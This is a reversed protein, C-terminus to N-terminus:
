ARPVARTGDAVLRAQESPDVARGPDRRELNRTHAIDAIAPDLLREREFARLCLDGGEKACDHIGADNREGDAAIVRDAQRDQPGDRRGPGDAHDMDVGM